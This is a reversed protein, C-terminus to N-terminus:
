LILNRVVDRMACKVINMNREQINRHLGRKVKALGGVQAGDPVAQGGLESSEGIAFPKVRDALKDAGKEAATRGVLCRPISECSENHAVPAPIRHCVGRSSVNFRQDVLDIKRFPLGRLQFPGQPSNAGAVAPDTKIKEDGQVNLLSQELKLLNM